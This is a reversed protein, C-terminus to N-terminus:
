KQGKNGRINDTRKSRQTSLSEWESERQVRMINPVDLLMINLLTSLTIDMKRGQRDQTNDTDRKDVVPTYGFFLRFPSLLQEERQTRSRVRMKLTWKNDPSSSSMLLSFIGKWDM